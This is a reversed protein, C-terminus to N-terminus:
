ERRAPPPAPPTRGSGRWRGDSRRRARRRFPSGGARCRRRGPSTAPARCRSPPACGAGPLLRAAVPEGPIIQFHVHEPALHLPQAWNRMEALCVVAPSNAATAENRRGWAADRGLVSLFTFYANPESRTFKRVADRLAYRLPAASPALDLAVLVHAHRTLHEQPHRPATDDFVEYLSRLWLRARMLVGPRSRRQARETLHVAEPHALLYAVQRATPYRREPRIALCRLIIEQLWPPIGPNVLRPPPAPEFLRKKLSLLNPRGHPYEGTALQYLIVGIAYLDSRPETRLHRVQEPAIYPTTGEEEGFASDLYDPLAAHHAVGFDVLVMEGSARDRVNGPNLDLHIVNQRHLDHVARCLRVGLDRVQEAPLPARASARALADGEIYEMVLYPRRRPDGVAVLRPVHPGHLHALIQCENEFAATASLPSGPGLKPVKMALSCRSRPHTVRYLRAMGGECLLDGVRYGDIREGAHVEHVRERAAAAGSERPSARESAPALGGTRLRTSRARKGGDGFASRERPGAAVGPYRHPTM